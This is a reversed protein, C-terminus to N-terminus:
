YTWNIQRLENKFTIQRLENQFTILAIYNAMCLYNTYQFESINTSRNEVRNTPRFCPFERPLAFIVLDIRAPHCSDRFLRIFVVWDYRKRM